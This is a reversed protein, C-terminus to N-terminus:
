EFDDAPDDFEMDGMADLCPIQLGQQALQRLTAPAATTDFPGGRYGFPGEHINHLEIGGFHLAAAMACLEDWRYDNWGKISFSLNM